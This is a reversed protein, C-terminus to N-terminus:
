VKRAFERWQRAKDMIDDYTKLEVWKNLTSEVKIRQIDDYYSHRRGIIIVVKPRYASLGYQSKFKARNSRDEFWNRYHDLQAVGAMVADRFRIRNKQNRILEATPRKLDCIDCFDSNIKELFLDPILRKGGEEHLILQPHLKAYNGLSLIYEPYREFFNQFEREAADSNILDELFSISQDSFRNLPEIVNSRAILLSNDRTSSDQIVNANWAAFPRIRYKHGDYFLIFQQENSSPDIAAIFELRKVLRNNFETASLEKALTSNSKIASFIHKVLGWRLNDAQLPGILMDEVRLVQNQKVKSAVPVLGLSEEGSFYFSNKLTGKPFRSLYNFHSQSYELTTDFLSKQSVGIHELAGLFLPYEQVLKSLYLEGKKRLGYKLHDSHVNSSAVKLALDLNRHARETVHITSGFFESVETQFHVKLNNDM